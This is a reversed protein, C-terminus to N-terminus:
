ELSRLEDITNLNYFNREDPFRVYILKQLKQWEQMKRGGGELYATLSPLLETKLLCFVPHMQETDPTGTTAIAIDANEQRLAEHLRNGLDEPLFPCDCPATLMLPANCFRLGAQLGALPGAFGAIDDTCVPVGFKAHEELNQNANILMADVQPALREMVHQILPKGRFLQLGKDVGGMRLARGGALILGTIAM